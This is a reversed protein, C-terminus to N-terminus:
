WFMGEVHAVVFGFGLEIKVGVELGEEFVEVSGGVCRVCVLM